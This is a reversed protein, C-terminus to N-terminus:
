AREVKALIKGYKMFVTCAVNAQYANNPHYVHWTLCFIDELFYLFTCIRIMSCIQLPLGYNGKLGTGASGPCARGKCVTYIWILQSRFVGFEIPLWIQRYKNVQLIWHNQLRARFDRILSCPHVHQKPGKSNAYPWLCMKAYHRGIWSREKSLRKICLM